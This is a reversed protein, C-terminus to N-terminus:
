LHLCTTDDLSQDTLVSLSWEPTVHYLATENELSGYVRQHYFSGQVYSRARHFYKSLISSYLGQCLRM